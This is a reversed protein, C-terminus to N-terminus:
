MCWGPMNMRVTEKIFADLKKLKRMEEIGLRPRRVYRDHQDGDPKCERCLTDLEERLLKVSDPIIMMQLIVQTATAASVFLAALSLFALQSSIKQASSMSESSRRALTRLINFPETTPPEEAGTESKSKPSEEPTGSRAEQIVPALIREMENQMRRLKAVSKSFITFFPRMLPPYSNIEKAVADVTAPYAKLIALFAPDHCVPAGVLTFATMRLTVDLVLDFLPVAYAGNAQQVRETLGSRMETQLFPLLVASLLCERCITM